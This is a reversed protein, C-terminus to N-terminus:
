QMDGTITLTQILELTDNDQMVCTHGPFIVTPTGDDDIMLAGISRLVVREYVKTTIKLTYTKAM